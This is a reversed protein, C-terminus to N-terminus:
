MSKQRVKMVSYKNINMASPNLFQNPGMATEAMPLHPNRRMYGPM